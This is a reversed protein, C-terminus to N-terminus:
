AFMDAVGGLEPTKREAKRSDNEVSMYQAQLASIQRKDGRPHYRGQESVSVGRLGELLQLVVGRQQRSSENLATLRMLAADVASPEMGQLSLLVRRPADSAPHCARLVAAILQALDAQVDVFYPDNLSIITAQLVDTSLYERVEAATAPDLVPAASQASATAPTANTTSPASSSASPPAFTEVVSRLVRTILGCSRTDHMQIAHTCFLIVAHLM